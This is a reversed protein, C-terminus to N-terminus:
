KDQVARRTLLRAVVQLFIIFAICSAWFWWPWLENRVMGTIFWVALVIALVPVIVTSFLLGIATLLKRVSGLKANKWPLHVPLHLRDQQWERYRM